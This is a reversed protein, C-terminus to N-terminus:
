DCFATAIAISAAELEIAMFTVSAFPVATLTAVEAPTIAVADTDMLFLDEFVEFNPTDFYSSTPTATRDPLTCPLAASGSDTPNEVGPEVTSGTDIPPATVTDHCSVTM